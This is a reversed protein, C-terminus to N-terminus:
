SIEELTWILNDTNFKLKMFLSDTAVSFVHYLTKGERFNHHLGINKVKYIRNKWKVWVPVEKMGVVVREDIIQTM